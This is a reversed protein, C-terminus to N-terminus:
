PLCYAALLWAWLICCLVYGLNMLRSRLAWSPQEGVWATLWLTMVAFTGAKRGGVFYLDIDKQRHRARWGIVVLTALYGFLVAYDWIDM